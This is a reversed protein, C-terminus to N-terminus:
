NTVIIDYKGSDVLYISLVTALAIGALLAGILLGMLTPISCLCCCRFDYEIIEITFLFFFSQFFISKMLQEADDSDIDDENM